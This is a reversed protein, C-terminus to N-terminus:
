VCVPLYVPTSLSIALCLSALHDVALDSSHTSKSGAFVAKLLFTGHHSCSGM